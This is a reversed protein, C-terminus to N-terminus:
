AAVGIGPIERLTSVGHAHLDDIAKQHRAAGETNAAANALFMDIREQHQDETAEGWTISRGDSLTFRSALLEEKWELAEFARALENMAARMLDEVQRREAERKERAKRQYGSEPIANSRYEDARLSRAKEVKSAHHMMREIERAGARDLDRLANEIYLRAALKVVGPTCGDVIRKAAAPYDKYDDATRMTAIADNLDSHETWYTASSM